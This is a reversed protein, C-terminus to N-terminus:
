HYWMCQLANNAHSRWEDAIADVSKKSPCVRAFGLAIMHHVSVSADEPETAMLLLGNRGQSVRRAPEDESLQELAEQEVGARSLVILMMHQHLSRLSAVLLEASCM